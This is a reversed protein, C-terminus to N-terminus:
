QFNRRDRSRSASVSGKRMGKPWVCRDELRRLSEVYYRLWQLGIEMQGEFINITHVHEKSTEPHAQKGMNM